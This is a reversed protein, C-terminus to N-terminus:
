TLKVYTLHAASATVTPTGTTDHHIAQIHITTSGTVTILGLLPGTNKMVVGATNIVKLIEVALGVDAGNTTDRLKAFIPIQDADSTGEVTILGNLLYTGASPLTVSCGVNGYTTTISYSGSFTGEGSSLSASASSPQRCVRWCDSEPDYWCLANGNPGIVNDTSDELCIRNGVASDTSGHLLTGDYDSTNCLLVVQGGDTIRYYVTVTVHDVRLGVADTNDESAVISFGFGADNVDAPTLTTGWLDTASGETLVGDAAPWDAIDTAPTGSAVGAKLLTVTTDTVVGAGTKSREISVSVGLITASDPVDFEFGQVILANSTANQALAYTAYANNSTFVNTPDTWDTGEAASPSADAISGTTSAPVMGSIAFEATATLRIVIVEETSPIEWDDLQATAVAYTTYCWFLWGCITFPANIIFYGPGDVEWTYNNTVTTAVNQYTVTSSIYIVNSSDFHNSTSSSNSSVIQSWGFLGGHWSWPTVECCDARVTHNITPKRFIETVLGRGRDGWRSWLIWAGPRMGVDDLPVGYIRHLHAAKIIRYFDEAREEARSQLASQNTVGAESWAATMDDLIVATTDELFGAIEAEGAADLVDVADVAIEHYPSEGTTTSEDSRVAFLVALTEPIRGYNVDVFNDDWVRLKDRRELATLHATKEDADCLQVISFADAQTDLKLACGIRTLVIDLADIAYWGFFLFNEPTGDPTFPLGPYDGMLDPGIYDWVDEVMESWTFATGANLSENFYDSSNPASRRQNYAWNMLTQRCLRRKDAIEVLYCAKEDDRLGPTICVPESAIHLNKHTVSWSQGSAAGAVETKDLSMVLNHSANLNIANLNARSILLWGQGPKGGLPNTFSNPKGWWSDIPLNNRQCTELATLPEVASVSGFTITAM